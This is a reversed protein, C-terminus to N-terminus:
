HYKNITISIQQCTDIGTADSKNYKNIETSISYIHQYKIITVSIQSYKVINFSLIFNEWSCVYFCCQDRAIRNGWGQKKTFHAKAAAERQILFVPQKSIPGYIYIYIYGFLLLAYCNDDVLNLLHWQVDHCIGNFMM